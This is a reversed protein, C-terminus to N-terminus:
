PQGDGSAVEASPVLGAEPMSRTSTAAGADPEPGAQVTDVPISVVVATGKDLRSEVALEGSMAEVLQKVISLGLGTGPICRAQSIEGRFFPDFMRELEDPPIGYGADRVEINLRRDVVSVRVEVPSPDRSFNLANRVLRVVVSKLKERDVKVHPLPGTAELLVRHGNAPEAADAVADRVVALPDCPQASILVAGSQLDAFEIIDDVVEALRLSGQNVLGAVQRLQEPEFLRQMLLESGAQIFSLPTRLEHSITSIVRSKLENLERLAAAESAQRHHRQNLFALGVIDALGRLLGIEKATFDEGPRSRAVLVQGVVEGDVALPVLAVARIEPPLLEAVAGLRQQESEGVVVVDLGSLLASVAPIQEAPLPASTFREAKRSVPNVRWEPLFERREPVWSWASCRDCELLSPVMEVVSRILSSEETERGLVRAVQLLATSSEAEQKQMRYRQASDISSAAWSALMSLISLDKQDFAGQRYSQASIFGLIKGGVTMPAGMWSLPLSGRESEFNRVLLPRGTRIIVDGLGDGLERTQPVQKVGHEVVLEYTIQGPGPGCIAVSFSEVPLVKAAQAWIAEFVGEPGEGV